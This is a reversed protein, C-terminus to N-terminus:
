VKWVNYSNIWVNGLLSIKLEGKCFIINVPDGNDFNLKLAVCLVSSDYVNAFVSIFSNSDVFINRLSCSKKNSLGILAPAFFLFAISNEM